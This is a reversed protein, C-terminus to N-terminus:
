SISLLQMGLNMMTPIWWRFIRSAVKVQHQVVQFVWTFVSGYIISCMCRSEEQHGKLMISHLVEYHLTNLNHSRVLQSYIHINYIYIYM